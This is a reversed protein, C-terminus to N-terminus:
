FSKKIHSDLYALISDRDYLLIKRSPQTYTICGETRLKWLHSKSKIGMMKMAEEELIWKDPEKPVVQDVLAELTSKLDSKKVILFQEEM